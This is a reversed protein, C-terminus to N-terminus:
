SDQKSNKKKALERRFLAGFGLATASGIITLPEPVSITGTEFEAGQAFIVEGAFLFNRGRRESNGAGANFNFNFTGTNLFELDFAISSQEPTLNLSTPNNSAGAKFTGSFTVEDPQNQTVEIASGARYTAPTSVTISEFPGLDQGGDLDLFTIILEDPQVVNNTGGQVLSFEFDTNTDSKLNIQGFDGSVKNQNRNQPDYTSTSIVVLDFIGVGEPDNVVEAFRMGGPEDPQGSAIVGMFNLSVAQAVNASLILPLTALLIPQYIKM